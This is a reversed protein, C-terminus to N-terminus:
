LGVSPRSSKIMALFMFQVFGLLLSITLLVALDIKIDLFTTMVIFMTIGISPLIVAIIMYFMALPNLKRGYEKIQIIQEKAINNIVSKLSGGIDAGTQQSNVIQWLIKRFSASPTLNIEETLADEMETGFDIKTIIESFHKGTAEYNKSVNKFADYLPVGSEIEIILFRGAFVIESDIDKKKRLIRVDPVRMFYFFIVVFIIPWGFVPFLAIKGIKSLFMWLAFSIGLSMYLSSMLTRKAFDYPSYKIGAQKLKLDLNPVTRAIQQIIPSVIIIM